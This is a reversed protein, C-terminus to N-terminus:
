PILDKPVILEPKIPEGREQQHIANAAQAIAIAEEAIVVGATVGTLAAGIRTASGMLALFIRWREDM